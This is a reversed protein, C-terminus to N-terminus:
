RRGIAFAAAMLDALVRLADDVIVNHAPVADVRAHAGKVLATVRGLRIKATTMYDPKGRAPEAEGSLVQM